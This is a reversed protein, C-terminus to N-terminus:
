ASDGGEWWGCEDRVREIELLCENFYGRMFYHFGPAIPPPYNICSQITEAYDECVQLTELIIHAIAPRLSCLDNPLMHEQNWIGFESFPKANSQVAFGKETVFILESRSGGHFFRDRFTRVTQFFPGARTYFESLSLPLNFKQEIEKATRLAGDKLVISSFTKPLQKKSITPDALQVVDWQRAVMEQLLDFISRCLGFLYELETAVLRSISTKQELKLEHLINFKKVCAGLNFFDDQLGSLLKSVVPWCGRQAIFELFRLHIDTPLEPEKAFYFGEAVKGSTQILGVATPLWIQWKGDVFFSLTPITRGRLEAADIHPIKAVEAAPISIM